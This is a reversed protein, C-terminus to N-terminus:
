GTQCVSAFATEFLLGGPGILVAGYPQRQCSCGGPLSYVVAESWAGGTSAPPTREFVTGAGCGVGVGGASTPGYLVGNGGFALDAAPLAGDPIGSFNHLVTKTWSGGTPPVLKFVTGYKGTGGAYTTGYLAGNKDHIVGAHPSAGDTGGKFSYITAFSPAQAAASHTTRIALAALFAVQWMLARRVTQM